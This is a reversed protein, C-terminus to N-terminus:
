AGVKMWRVEWSVVAVVVVGVTTHRCDTERRAEFM